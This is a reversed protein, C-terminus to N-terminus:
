TVENDFFTISPDKDVPDPTISGKLLCPPFPSLRVTFDSGDPNFDWSESSKLLSTLEESERFRLTEMQLIPIIIVGM